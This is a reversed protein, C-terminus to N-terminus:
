GDNTTDPLASSTAGIVTIPKSQPLTPESEPLMPTAKMAMRLQEHQLFEAGEMLAAQPHKDAFKLLRPLMLFLLGFLLVLALVSVWVERTAAAIGAVSVAVVMLVLCIKTM